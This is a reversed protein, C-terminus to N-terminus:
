IMIQIIIKTIIKENNKINNEKIPAAPSDNFLDINKNNINKENKEAM